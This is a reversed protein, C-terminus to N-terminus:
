AEVAQKKNRRIFWASLAGLGFLGVTAPEPIAYVTVTSLSGYGFQSPTPNAPTAGATIPGTIQTILFTDGDAFSFSGNDSIIGYVGQGVATDDTSNIIDSSWGGGLFPPKVVAASTEWASFANVDTDLIQGGSIFDFVTNPGGDLLAFFSLGATVGETAANGGVIQFSQIAGTAVSALLAAAIIATIKKM